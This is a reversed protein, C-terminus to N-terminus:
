EAAMLACAANEVPVFEDNTMEAQMIGRSIRLFM